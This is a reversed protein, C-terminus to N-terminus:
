RAVTRYWRDVFALTWLINLHGHPLGALSENRRLLTQVRKTNILVGAVGDEGLAAALAERFGQHDFLSRAPDIFGSKPRYILRHDIHRSLQEKMWGKAEADPHANTHVVGLSALDRSLFPYSVEFGAARLPGYTKQAYIAACTIALDSVVVREALSTVGAAGMAESWAADISKLDPAQYLVGFLANQAIAASQPSLWSM